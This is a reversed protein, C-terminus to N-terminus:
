PNAEFFARAFGMPTESREAKQHSGMLHMKSGLTPEVPNRATVSVIPVPPTFNGWLCTKKTYPDGFECPNFIFAPPGLYDRLRGVPNELVWWVPRYIAVTRLCADVLQLGELLKEEGKDKWWRAGSVAFHDCPPAMMVGHVPQDLKKLLRVDNGNKLDFRMVEYGADEYPQSWNGTFDCLSLILEFRM